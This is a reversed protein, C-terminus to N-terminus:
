AYSQIWRLLNNLDMAGPQRAVERGNKFIILTPISQIRFQSALMQETESNVKALRVRPELRAAAQQYVPAMMKCPGCWSAWFDVVVPIGTRSITKEFTEETLEVPQAAFLDEKCKGCKPHESLRDSPLRNVASCKPCVIEVTEQM